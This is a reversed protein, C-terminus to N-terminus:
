RSRRSNFAGILATVVMLILFVFFLTRAIDTSAGALGTFGFVGAVIALFLLVFAWKLM